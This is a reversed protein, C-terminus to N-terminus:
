CQNAEGNFGSVTTDGTCCYGPGAFAREGSVSIEEICISPVGDTSEVRITSGIVCEEDSLDGSTVSLGEDRDDVVSTV